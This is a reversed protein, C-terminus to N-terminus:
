KRDVCSSDDQNPCFPVVTEPDREFTTRSHVRFPSFHKQRHYTRTKESEGVRAIMSFCVVVAYMEFLMSVEDAEEVLGVGVGNSIGSDSEVLSSLSFFFLLSVVCFCNVGDTDENLTRM